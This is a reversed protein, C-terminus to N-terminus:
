KCYSLCQLLRFHGNVSLHTFLHLVRIYLLISSLWLFFFLIIGNAAVHIFRSTIKNLSTLFIFFFVM